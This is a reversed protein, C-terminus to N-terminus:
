GSALLAFAKNILCIDDSWALSTRVIFAVYLNSGEVTISPTLSSSDWIAEPSLFTNGSDISKTLHINDDGSWVIYVIAGEVTISPSVGGLNDENLRIPKTFSTGGDTSKSFLIDSNEANVWVIYATGNEDIALSPKTQSSGLYNDFIKVNPIFPEEAAANSISFITIIMNISVIAVFFVRFM